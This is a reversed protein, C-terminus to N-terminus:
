GIAGVEHTEEETLTDSLNNLCQILADAVPNGLPDVQRGLPFLIWLGELAKEIARRLLKPDNYSSICRAWIIITSKGLEYETTAKDHRQSKGLVHVCSSKLGCDEMYDVRMGVGDFLEEAQSTETSEPWLARLNCAGAVKDRHTNLAGDQSMPIIFQLLVGSLFTISSRRPASPPLTTVM